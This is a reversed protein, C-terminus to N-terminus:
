NTTHKTPPEVTHICECGIDYVLNTIEELEFYKGYDSNFVLM